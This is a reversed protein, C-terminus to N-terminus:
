LNNLSTLCDDLQKCISSWAFRKGHEVRENFGVSLDTDGSIIKRIEAALEDSSFIIKGLNENTEVFDIAPPIATTLIYEGFWQAEVNVIGFSEYRSTLCFVKARNYIEFLQKRDSYAGVFKVCEKLQPNREYFSNIKPQFTAEINGIFLFKWGKLDGIKELAELMYENNKPTTGIKGVTILLNEKEEFPRTAIHNSQIFYDNVGDPIYQLKPSKVHYRNQVYEIAKSTEASVIDVLHRLYLKYVWRRIREIKDSEQRIMDLINIDLKVYLKGHPNRIKYIIAYLISFKLFYLNLVDIQKANKWLYKFAYKSRGMKTYDGHVDDDLTELKLPSLSDRMDKPIQEERLFSVYKADYGLQAMCYPITGPDKYLQSIFDGLTFITVFTKM